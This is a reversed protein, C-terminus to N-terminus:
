LCGSNYFFDIVLSNKIISQLLGHTFEHVLSEKTNEMVKKEKKLFWQTYVVKIVDHIAIRKSFVHVTSLLDAHKSADTLYMYQTNGLHRGGQLVKFGM